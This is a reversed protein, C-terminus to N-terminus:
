AGAIEFTARAEPCYPVGGFYPWDTFANAYMNATGTSVTSPIPLGLIFTSAGPMIMGKFSVVGLTTNSSDLVNVAVLVTQLDESTSNVTVKFHAMSGAEFITKPHGSQNCSLAEAIKITFPVHVRVMVSGDFFVNNDLIMEGLVAEAEAKIVYAKDPQVGTTNWYFTLNASSSPALGSVTQTSIINLDYFTTVDFTETNTGNNAVVVDIRVSQGVYVSTSSIQVNAVAVDRIGSYVIGDRTSHSILRGFPELSDVLKTGELHLASSAPQKVKFTITAFTGTGNVGGKVGVLTSSAIILGHTANYSDTFIPTVFLTQDTDPHTKLFSGEEVKTANLVDGRFYLSFQWGYLDVVNSVTVNIKFVDGVKLGGIASPDIYLVTNEALLTPSFDVISIVILMPFLVGIISFVKKVM